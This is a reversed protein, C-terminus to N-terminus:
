LGTGRILAQYRSDSRLPELEPDVKMWLGQPHREAHVQVLWSIAADKEGLGACAIATAYAFPGGRGAQSRLRDRIAEAPARRGAQALAYALHALMVPDQGSVDRAKELAGIAEDYRGQQRYSRGLGLLSFAHQPERDLISRYQRIAPEYRRLFFESDALNSLILPSLPDVDRARRLVAEAEEFRQREMLLLGYWQLATVYSPNLEIARRYEAEAGAFNWDYNELIAGRSAHAEALAPDLALAKEVAREAGAHAEALPLYGYYGLLLYGDALGSYARAFGPDRAVAQGFHLISRRLGEENRRNWEFRGSLYALHAEPDAPRASASAPVRVRIQEAVNRAVDEQVDLLDAMQRDYTEAWVHTEDSVRILQASVRLRREAQRVAGEVVYGVQLERGIQGAGEDSQKYKMVTTRAIVGLAPVRGLDAIIEETLGDSLYEQEASGTLNRFPLVALRVLPAEGVPVEARGPAFPRPLRAGAAYWLGLVLAAAVVAAAALVRARKPRRAGAPGGLSARGGGGARTLRQLDARMESAHQYRRRRDKELAKEVIAGLGSPLVPNVSSLPTPARSLVADVAAALTSGRFPAQGTAMEYLVAGLSFLDSRTDAPEGRAQEPSLYAGTDVLAEPAVEEEPRLRPRTSEFSFPLRRAADVDMGFDLVKASGQRTLLINGPRLNGHRIGNLHAAELADAVQIAIELLTAPPLPEGGLRHELTEGELFERVVFPRGEHTDIGFVTCIGPHTLTAAAAAARRFSELAHPDQALDEALFKLAVTRGLGTDMAKYVVGTGSGELEELVVYHSVTEGIV